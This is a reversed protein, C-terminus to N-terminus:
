TFIKEPQSNGNIEKKYGHVKGKSHYHAPCNECQRCIRHDFKKQKGKYGQRRELQLPYANRQQFSYRDCM